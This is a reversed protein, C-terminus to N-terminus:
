GQANESGSVNKGKVSNLLAIIRDFALFNIISIKSTTYSNHILTILYLSLLLIIFTIISVLLDM